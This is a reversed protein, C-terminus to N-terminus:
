RGILTLNNNVMVNQVLQQGGAMAQEITKSLSESDSTIQKTIDKVGPGSPMEFSAAQVKQGTGSATPTSELDKIATEVNGGSLMSSTGEAIAREEDEIQYKLRREERAIRQEDLIIDQELLDLEVQTKESFAKSAYDYIEYFIAGLGVASGILPLGKLLHGGVRNLFGLFGKLSGAKKAAKANDLIERKMKNKNRAVEIKKERLKSAKPIETNVIGGAIALVGSLKLMLNLVRLLNKFGLSPILKLLGIAGKVVGKLKFVQGTAFKFAGVIGTIFPLFISKGIKAVLSGFGGIFSGFAGMVTKIISSLGVKPKKTQTPVPAAGIEVSPTVEEAAYLLKQSEERLSGIVEKIREASQQISLSSGVFSTRLEELESSGVLSLTQLVKDKIQKLKEDM